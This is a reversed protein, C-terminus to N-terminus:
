RLRPDLADRVADGLLLFSLVTVTLFLGPYILLYPYDLFMEQAESLQRGWSVTPYQLGVGLFDLTAESGIVVGVNLMAYVFVPAIANPLIHRFLIRVDGAGLMRAAQVYDANRVSLVQGRMIRTMTTWWFAGLVLAVAWVAHSPFSTLMVLAGLVLPIGFVIDTARSLLADLWGGYYGSVSGLLLAIVLALATVSFGIIIPARAGNVVQSWYDCGHLDYGFPHGGAAFPNWSSPKHKAYKLQCHANPGNSTFLWPFAAMAVMVVMIVASIWFIVRRRLEHWADSWLSAAAGLDGGATATAAATAGPAVSKDDTESM